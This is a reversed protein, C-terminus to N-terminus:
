KLQTISLTRQFRETLKDYGFVIKRLEELAEIRELYTKNKWYDRNDSERVSTIKFAKKDM